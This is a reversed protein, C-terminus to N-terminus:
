YRGLTICRLSPGNSLITFNLMQPVGKSGEFHVSSDLLARKSKKAMKPTFNPHKQHFYACYQFKIDREREIKWEGKGERM